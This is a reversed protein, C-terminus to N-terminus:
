KLIDSSNEIFFLYWVFLEYKLNKLHRRDDKQIVERDNELFSEKEFVTKGYKFLTLKLWSGNKKFFDSFLSERPKKETTASACEV